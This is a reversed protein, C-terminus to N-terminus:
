YLGAKQQAAVVRDLDAENKFPINDRTWKIAYRPDIRLVEAVQGQAAKEKGMEAYVMALNLHPWLAGPNRRIAEQYAAIAEDYRRLLYYSNGLFFAFWTAYNPDLRMAKKAFGIAEDPRGALNLAEALHTYAEAFNPDSAVAREVEAVGLDQHKTWLLNWGYTLHAEASSADM